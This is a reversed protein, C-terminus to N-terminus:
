TTCTASFAIEVQLSVIRLPTKFTETGADCVLTGTGSVESVSHTKHPFFFLGGGGGLNLSKSLKFNEKINYTNTMRVTQSIM